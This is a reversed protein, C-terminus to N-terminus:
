SSLGGEGLESSPPPLLFPGWGRGGKKRQQWFKRVEPRLCIVEKHNEISVVKCTRPSRPHPPVSTGLTHGEM